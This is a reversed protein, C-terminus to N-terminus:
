FLIQTLFFSLADVVQQLCSQVPNESNKKMGTELTHWNFHKVPLSCLLIIPIFFIHFIKYANRIISLIYNKQIKKM